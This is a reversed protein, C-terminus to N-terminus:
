ATKGGPVSLRNPHTGGALWGARGAERVKRWLEDDYGVPFDESQPLPEMNCLERVGRDFDALVGDMDFYIKKINM